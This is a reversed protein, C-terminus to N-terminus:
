EATDLFGGQSRLAEKFAEKVNHLDKGAEYNWTSDGWSWTGTAIIPVDVNGEKALLSIRTAKTPILAPDFLPNTSFSM